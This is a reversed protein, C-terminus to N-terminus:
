FEQTVQEDTFLNIFFEVFSSAVLYMNQWKVQEPMKDGENEEEYDEVDWENEHDWWYIFGNSGENLSMIIQNGMGDSAIPLCFGPIRELYTLYAWSIHHTGKDSGYFYAIQSGKFTPNVYGSDKTHV